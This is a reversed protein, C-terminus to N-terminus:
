VSRTLLSDAFAAPLSADQFAGLAQKAKETLYAARAAAKNPELSNDGDLLDDVIQFVLGVNEAYVSAAEIQRTGAGAAICGTVCAASILKATKLRDIEELLEGHAPGGIGLELSQGRIMGKYGACHALVAIAQVAAEPPVGCPRAATEFALTLLADGALLAQAEGFRIHCSPEGRRFADDDMCPLDDHILSYTHIMEVACAFGLAKKEEGGCARCFALCLLPRVRKGGSFLSYRMAEVLTNGPEEPLCENLAADIMQRYDSLQRDFMTM